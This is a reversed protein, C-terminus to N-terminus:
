CYDYKVVFTQYLVLITKMKKVSFKLTSMRTLFCNLISNFTLALIVQHLRRVTSFSVLTDLSTQDIAFIFTRRCSEIRSADNTLMQDRIYSLSLLLIGELADIIKSRFAMLASIAARQPAEISLGQKSLRLTSEVKQLV